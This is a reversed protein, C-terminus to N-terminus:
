GNIINWVSEKTNRAKNANNKVQRVEPNHVSLETSEEADVEASLEEEKPEESPAEEETNGKLAEIEAILMSIAEEFVAVSVFEDQPAEEEAPAEEAPAEEKVEELAVEEVPTEVVEESVVESSLLAKISKLTEKPNLM